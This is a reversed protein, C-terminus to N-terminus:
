LFAVFGKLNMNSSNFFPSKGNQSPVVGVLIAGNRSLFDFGYFSVFSTPTSSSTSPGTVLLSLEQIEAQNTKKHQQLVRLSISKENRDKQKLDGFLEL